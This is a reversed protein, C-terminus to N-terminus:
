RRKLERYWSVLESREDEIEKLPRILARGQKMLKYSRDIMQDLKEKQTKYSKEVMKMDGDTLAYGGQKAEYFNRVVDKYEEFEYMERGKAALDAAASAKQASEATRKAEEAKRKEENLRAKEEAERIQKAIADLRAQEEEIKKRRAEEEAKRQAEEAKRKEDAIRRAEAEEAAKRAAEEARRKAEAEEAAKRAAEEAKRKAEAEEAAKRAAEDAKRKEEAIKRAREEAAERLKREEEAKAAAAKREQEAKAAAAKREEDLKKREEALRAELQEAAIREARERARREIESQDIQPVSQPIPAPPPTPVGAEGGANGKEQLNAPSAGDKADSPAAPKVPHIDVPLHLKRSERYQNGYYIAAAIGAAVAVLGFSMFCWNRFKKRARLREGERRLAALGDEGAQNTPMTEPEAITEGEDFDDEADGRMAAIRSAVESADKIRKSADSDSMGRLLALMASDSKIKPDDFNPATKKRARDFFATYAANGPPLRPFALKGSLAEYLCLGLAYIDSSSDGRSNSIVLEPPMYDLTGPVMGTTVSGREDRSIGFDMIAALDPRGSPYYLNSPKIDRHILGQQHMMALGRAYREFAALVHRKVLGVGKSARIADRLSSGPMGPLFDMILFADKAGSADLEFFDVLSVFCPDNLRKMIKAERRFRDAYEAKLLHKVAVPKGSSLDRAKFVEGFGGKGIFQLLMYRNSGNVLERHRLTKLGARFTGFDKYRQERTPALAHILVDDIGSLLRKVRGSIRIPSEGGAGLHSWRSLWVFNAQKDASEIRQYPTKGTLAEHLVVGMSFVDSQVDGHFEPDTFDPAMYDFSGRINGTSTTATGDQQKALEFDILKVSEIVGGKGYCIFINGPKVDRHVMGRSATYELGALADDVIRLAEDADLGSPHRALREKMTEGTLYEQVVVHLDTFDGQEAFCGFYRVVNPHVLAALDRTRKELRHWHDHGDDQVAMVKLAVMTGVPCLGHVDEVCEAKYVTGQSGAGAQIAQLVKFGGIVKDKLDAM